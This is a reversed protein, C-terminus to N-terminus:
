GSVSSTRERPVIGESACRYEYLKLVLPHEDTRFSLSKLRRKGLRRDVMALARHIFNSSQVAEDISLSPYAEISREFFKQSVVGTTELIEQAEDGAAYCADSQKPDRWDTADNALRIGSELTHKDLLYRHTCFNYVEVGEITIWSRGEM